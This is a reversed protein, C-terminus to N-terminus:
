TKQPQIRSEAERAMSGFGDQALFYVRVQGANKGSENCGHASVALSKGDASISVLQGTNNGPMTGEITQDLQLWRTGELYFM